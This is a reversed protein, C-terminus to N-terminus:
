GVYRSSAFWERAGATPDPPSETSNAYHGGFLDSPSDYCKKLQTGTKGNTGALKSVERIITLTQEDPDDDMEHVVSERSRLASQQRLIATVSM